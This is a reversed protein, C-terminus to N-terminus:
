IPKHYTEDKIKPFYIMDDWFADYGFKISRILLLILGILCFAIIFHTRHIFVANFVYLILTHVSNVQGYFYNVLILFLATLSLQSIKRYHKKNEYFSAIIKQIFEDREAIAIKQLEFAAKFDGSKKQQRKEFTFVFPLKYILKFLIFEVIPILVIIFFGYSFVYGLLFMFNNLSFLTGIQFTLLSDKEM